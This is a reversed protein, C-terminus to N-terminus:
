GGAPITDVILGPPLPPEDAIRFADNLYPMAEDYKGEDNAHIIALEQGSEVQEGVKILGSLGVAFDVPDTTKVRGAGLIVSARGIKEADVQAIYGDAPPM